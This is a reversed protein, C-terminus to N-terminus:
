VDLLLLSIASSTRTINQYVYNPIFNIDSSSELNIRLNQDFSFTDIDWLDDYLSTRKKKHQPFRSSLNKKGNSGKMTADTQLFPTLDGDKEQIYTNGGSTSVLVVPMSYFDPESVPNSKSKALTGKIKKRVINKSLFFMGRLFLEHYYAGKDCGQTIRLFGYINLQRRFSALKTQRFFQPMLQVLFEKRKHIKFARGHTEWSIIDSYGSVEAYELLRHLKCPFLTEADCSNGKTADRASSKVQNVETTTSNSARDHNVHSVYYRQKYMKLGSKHM